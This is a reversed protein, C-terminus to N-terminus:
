VSLVLRQFQNLVDQEKFFGQQQLEVMSVPVSALKLHCIVYITTVIQLIGLQM